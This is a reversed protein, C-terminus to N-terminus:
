ELETPTNQSPYIFNYPGLFDGFWCLILAILAFHGYKSRHQIDAILAILVFCTSALILMLRSYSSIHLSKSWLSGAVCCATLVVLFGCIINIKSHTQLIM